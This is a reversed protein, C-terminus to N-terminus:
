CRFCVGNPDWGFPTKIQAGAGGRKKQTEACVKNNKEKACPRKFAAEARFLQQNEHVSARQKASRDLPLANKSNPFANKFTRTLAYFCVFAARQLASFLFRVAHFLIGPAL